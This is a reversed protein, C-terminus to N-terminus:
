RHAFGGWVGLVQVRNERETLSITVVGWGVEVVKRPFSHWGRAKRPHRTQQARAGMTGEEQAPTHSPLAQDPTYNTRRSGSHVGPVPYPCESAHSNQKGVRLSLESVQERNM